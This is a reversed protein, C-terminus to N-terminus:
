RNKNYYKMYPSDAKMEEYSSYFLNSVDEGANIKNMIKCYEETFAKAGEECMHHDDSFSKSDSFLAYRDKLLNFDYVKSSYKEGLDKTVDYFADWNDYKWIVRDAIPTVVFIVEANNERCINVMKDIQEFNDTADKFSIKNSNYSEKIEDYSLTLDEGKGRIGNTKKSFDVDKCGDILINYLKKPSTGINKYTLYAMHVAVHLGNRLSHSYITGYNDLTENKLLYTIRSKASDLRPLLYANGEADYIDRDVANYAIEIVVTKVPNRNVEKKLIEERARWPMVGGSLNLSNCSLEEDIIPMYFGTLAHSSGIILYDLEGEVSDRYPRDCTAFTETIYYPEILVVSAIAVILVTIVSVLIAKKSDRM